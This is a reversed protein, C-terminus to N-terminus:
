PKVKNFKCAVALAHAFAPEDRKAIADCLVVSGGLLGSKQGRYVFAEFHEDDYVGVVFLTKTLPSVIYNALGNKRKFVLRCVKTKQRKRFKVM